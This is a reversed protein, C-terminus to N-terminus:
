QKFGNRELFMNFVADLIGGDDFGELEGSANERLIIAEPDFGDEDVPLLVCYTEGEFLVRDLVECEIDNGEADTIVLYDNDQM